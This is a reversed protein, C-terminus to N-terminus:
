FDFAIALALLLAHLTWSVWHFILSFLMFGYVAANRKCVIDSDNQHAKVYMVTGWIVVVFHMLFMGATTGWLAWHWRKVAEGMALDLGVPHVTYRCNRHPFAILQRFPLCDEKGVPITGMSVDDPHSRHYRQVIQHDLNVEWRMPAQTSRPGTWPTNILMRSTTQTYFGDIFGYNLTGYPKGDSGVGLQQYVVGRLQPLQKYQTILAYNHTTLTHSHQLALIGFAGLNRDEIYPRIINFGLIAAYCIILPPSQLLSWILTTYTSSKTTTTSCHDANYYILPVIFTAISVVIVSAVGVYRAFDIPTRPTLPNYQKPEAPSM